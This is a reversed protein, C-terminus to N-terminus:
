RDHVRLCAIQTTATEHQEAHGIAFSTEYVEAFFRWGGGCGAHIQVCLAVHNVARAFVTVSRDADGTGDSAQDVRLFSVALETQPLYHRRRNEESEMTELEAPLFGAIQAFVRVERVKGFGAADKLAVAIEVFLVFDKALRFQRASQFADGPIEVIKIAAGHRPFERSCHLLAPSQEGRFIEGM